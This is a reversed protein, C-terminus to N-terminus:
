PLAEPMFWMPLWVGLALGYGAVEQVRNHSVYQAHMGTLMGASFVVADAVVYKAPFNTSGRHDHAWISSCGSLLLILAIARM